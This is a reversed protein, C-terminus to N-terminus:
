KGVRKSIAKTQKVTAAKSNKPNISLKEEMELLEPMDNQAIDVIERPITELGNLIAYQVSMACLKIVERPIGKSYNFIGEVASSEFPNAIQAVSCRFDILANVDDLTLADLNSTVAIRSVLARKSPDALKYRLEIQGAMVINILKTDDSEFNLIQRIQEFMAGKLQQAEDIFLIV